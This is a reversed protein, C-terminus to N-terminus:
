PAPKADADPRYELLDSLTVGLADCLKALTDLGIRQYRGKVIDQVTKPNLKTMWALKVASIEREELLEGLKWVVEGM